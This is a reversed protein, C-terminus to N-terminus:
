REIISKAKIPIMPSYCVDCSIQESKKMEDPHIKKRQSCTVCKLEVFKLRTKYRKRM